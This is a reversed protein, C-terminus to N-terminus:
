FKSLECGRSNMAMRCSLEAPYKQLHQVKRYPINHFIKINNNRLIGYRGYRYFCTINEHKNNKIASKM